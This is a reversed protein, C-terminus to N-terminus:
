DCVEYCRRSYCVQRCDNVKLNFSSSIGNCDLNVTETGFWNLEMNNIILNNGSFVLNYHSHTSTVTVVEPDDVDSCELKLNPYVITNDASNEDVAKDSLSNWAYDGGGRGNVYFTYNSPNDAANGNIVVRNGSFDGFIM